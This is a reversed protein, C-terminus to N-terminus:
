IEMVHILGFFFHFLIPDLTGLVKAFNPQVSIAMMMLVDIKRKAKWIVLSNVQGSWPWILDIVIILGFMGLFPEWSKRCQYIHFQRLFTEASHSVITMEKRKPNKEEIQNWFEAEKCTEVCTLAGSSSDVSESLHIVVITLVSIDM